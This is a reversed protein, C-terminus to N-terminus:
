KRVPYSRLAVGEVLQVGAVVEGKELKEKIVKKDPQYLIMKCDSPLVEENIVMSPASPTLKFRMSEGELETVNMSKMAMKILDKLRERYSKIGRAVKLFLDARDRFKNEDADLSKLMWEYADVKNTLMKQVEALKNELEENIEGQQDILSDIIKQAETTIELLNM